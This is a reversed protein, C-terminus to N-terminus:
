WGWVGFTLRARILLLRIDSLFGCSLTLIFIPRVVIFSHLGVQCSMWVGFNSFNCLRQSDTHAGGIFPHETHPTSTPLAFLAFVMSLSDLPLSHLCIIWAGEKEEEKATEASVTASSNSWRATSAYLTGLRWHDQSSLHAFAAVNESSM